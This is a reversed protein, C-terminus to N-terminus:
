RIEEIAWQGHSKILQHSCASREFQESNCDLTYIVCDGQSRLSEILTNLEADTGDCPALIRRQELRYESISVKRLMKLDASFGVAPRERGFDKGIGHYRGGRAIEQGEGATYASFVIGTEYHYGSLEALDFNIVVEPHRQEIAEALTDLDDLFAMAETAFSLLERAESLVAHGGNLMSLGNIGRAIDPSVDLESVFAEIEPVSKRQLMDFLLAAGTDDLGAARSVERFIGTHGLDISVSPVGCLALSELMLSLVERDSAIGDHGYLEVGVQLPSRTGGFGAPRTTLVTGLYCLRVPGERNIRHADIRAIQPTMDARVGMMRGTLQDTLKFTQLDLDPSAGALLSELYEIFPPMVLEYGWSRFLDVLRRHHAELWAADAPLAEEIGEPLLWRNTQYSTM